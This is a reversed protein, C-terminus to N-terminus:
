LLARPAGVDFTAYRESSGNVGTQSNRLDDRWADIMTSSATEDSRARHFTYGLFATQKRVELVTAKTKRDRLLRDRPRKRERRGFQRIFAKMRAVLDPQPAGYPPMQTNLTQTSQTAAIGAAVAEIERDMRKLRTSDYPAAVFHALFNRTHRPFGALQSRMAAEKQPSRRVTSRQGPATQPQGIPSQLVASLTEMGMANALPNADLSPETVSESEESSSESWDSVPEEEDFYHTDELSVIQPVFPPQMMHLQGWRIDRFWKHAKIDEGDHPYVARGNRDQNRHHFLFNGDNQITRERNMDRYRYKKCSLRVERSCVLNVILDMCRRSVMPRPPFAFTQLHNVINRKTQQRGGEESLFPTHGYLCEYLIVGLSCSRAASRNGCRNRWNLLPEDHTVEGNVLILPIQREHKQIAQSVGNTWKVTGQPGEARDIADGEVALGLKQLLSYRQTHYYSTDHSWHGDFALGFDSIKLHGSSSVLFNDPKIDRHICHLAHAEEICLVMEAIYFKAVPESLINERILLGLFDGGPMYEMVLYLAAADQFSSILPVIWRSGESAVLFDREARLHGEQSTRLMASKRIVKMAYVRGPQGRSNPQKERVLRVVGFSGKGLIKLVEYSDTLDNHRGKMASISKTMLVRSQRLFKTEQQYFDIRRMNKEIPSLGFSHYLESELYRQRLSRPSPKLKDNFYTELYIKAAAAKEVTLVTPSPPVIAAEPIASLNSEADRSVTETENHHIMTPARKDAPVNNNSDKSSLKSEFSTKGTTATGSSAGNSNGNTNNSTSNSLSSSLIDPASAPFSANAARHSSDVSPRAKGNSRHIVTAAGRFSGKLFPLSMKKFMRRGRHLMENPAPSTVAPWTVTEKMVLHSSSRDNTRSRLVSLVDDEQRRSTSMTETEARENFPVTTSRVGTSGPLARNM